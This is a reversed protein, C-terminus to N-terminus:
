GSPEIPKMCSTERLTATSLFRHFINLANRTKHGREMKLSHFTTNSEDKKTTMDRQSQSNSPFHHAKVCEHKLKGPAGASEMEFYKGKVM